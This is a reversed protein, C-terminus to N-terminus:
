GTASRSEFPWKLTSKLEDLLPPSFFFCTSALLAPTLHQCLCTHPLMVCRLSKCLGRLYDPPAQKGRAAQINAM